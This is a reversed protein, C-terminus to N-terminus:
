ELLDPYDEKRLSLDYLAYFTGVTLLVLLYIKVTKIQYFSIFSKWFNPNANVNETKMRNMRAENKEKLHELDINNDEAPKTNSFGDKFKTKLNQIFGKIKRLFEESSFSQINKIHSNQKISYVILSNASQSRKHLNNSKIVEQKWAEGLETIMKQTNRVAASNNVGHHDDKIKYAGESIINYARDHYQSILENNHANLSQELAKWDTDSNPQYKKDEIIKNTLNQLQAQFKSVIHEVTSNIRANSANACLSLIFGSFLCTLIM